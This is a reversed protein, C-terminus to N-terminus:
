YAIEGVRGVITTALHWDRHRGNLTSSDLFIAMM